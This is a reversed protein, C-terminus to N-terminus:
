RGRMYLMYGIDQKETAAKEASAATISSTHALRRTPRDSVLIVYRYWGRYIYVPLPSTSLLMHTRLWRLM